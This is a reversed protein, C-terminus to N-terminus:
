DENRWLKPVEQQETEHKDDVGSEGRWVENVPLLPLQDYPGVVSKTFNYYL